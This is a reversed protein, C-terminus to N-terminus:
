GTVLDGLVSFEAFSISGETGTICLQDIPIPEVNVEVEEGEVLARWWEVFEPMKDDPVAPQQSANAATKAEEESVVAGNVVWALYGYSAIKATRQENLTEFTPSLKRHMLTVRYVGKQPLPRKENIINWLVQTAMFVHQLKLRMMQPPIGLNAGVAPIAIPQTM